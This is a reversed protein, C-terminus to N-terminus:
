FSPRINTSVFHWSAAHGCLLHLRGYGMDQYSKYLSFAQEFLRPTLHVIQAEEASIFREIVRIAEEKHNRSLANGVELLVADTVLTPYGQFQKALQVAKAHYEDRRNIAAIIFVSDVFITNKM